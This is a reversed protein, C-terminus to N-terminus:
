QTRFVTLCKIGTEVVGLEVEQGLSATPITTDKLYVGKM